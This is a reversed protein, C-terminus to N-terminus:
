GREMFEIQYKYRGDAAVDDCAAVGGTPLLTVFKVGTIRASVSRGESDILAGITAALQFAQMADRTTASCTGSITRSRSRVGWSTLITVSAMLPDHEVLKEEYNWDDAGGLASPSDVYPFTYGAFSWQPLAM